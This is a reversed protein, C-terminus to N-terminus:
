RDVSSQYTFREYVGRYKQRIFYIAEVIKSNLSM